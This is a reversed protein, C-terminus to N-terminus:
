ALKLKEYIEIKMSHFEEIFITKDKLDHYNGDSWECFYSDFTHCIKNVDDKDLGNKILRNKINQIAKNTFSLVIPKKTEQVMKCLKTTKGSGAQANYICGRGNEMKYDSMDMNERYHKEFCVLENDTVYAKGIKKTSFKVDKKNKFM